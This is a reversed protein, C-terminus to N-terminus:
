AALFIGPSIQVTELIMENDDKDSAVSTVRPALPRQSPVRVPAASVAVSIRLKKSLLSRSWSCLFFISEIFIKKSFLLLATWFESLFM